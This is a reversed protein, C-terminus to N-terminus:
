WAVKAGATWIYSLKQHVGGTNQHAPLLINGFISINENAGIEISPGMFVSTEGSDDDEVGNPRDKEANHFTTDWGVRTKFSESAPNLTYDANLSAFLLNGHQFEQAGQSKLVYSITGSLIVPGATYRYVIGMPYDWSGSGPQLEPEFLVGYPDLEGTDGTPFKVGGSIGLFDDNKVFVKYIGILNLDGLGESSQKRGLTAHHHIDLSGRVVYPLDALVSFRDVPTVGFIFHYFEEHTKDHFERGAHHLNHAERADKVDWQQQELMFNFFIKQNGNKQKTSEASQALTCGSSDCAWLNPGPMLIFLLLLFLVKSM